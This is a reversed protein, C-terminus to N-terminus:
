DTTLLGYILEDHWKGRLISHQRLCAERQMGIKEMLKFSATHEAVCYALIKHVKLQKMLFDVLTKVAEIAYGKGHFDHHFRYGIEVRKFELSEFNFCVMGILENSGKLLVSLLVWDNEGGPWDDICARVKAQTEALSTVDRIYHMMAQNQEHAVMTDFDCAIIKRLTLRETELTLTNIQKKLEDINM